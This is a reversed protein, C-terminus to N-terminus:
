STYQWVLLASVVPRAHNTRAVFKTLNTIWWSGAMSPEYKCPVRVRLRHAVIESIKQHGTMSQLTCYTAASSFDFSVRCMSDFPQHCSAKRCNRHQTDQEGFPRRLHHLTTQKRLNLTTKGRPSAEDDNVFNIMCFALDKADNHCHM